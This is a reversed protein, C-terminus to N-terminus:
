FVDAVITGESPNVKCQLAPAVDALGSGLAGFLSYDDSFM